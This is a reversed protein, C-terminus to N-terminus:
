ILVAGFAKVTEESDRGSVEKGTAQEILNLLSIARARIFGEFDDARITHVPILHSDLFENLSAESVQKKQEIRGLYTSPADGSIFRNTGAALPAKNVISNWKASPLQNRECWIRPFIHHIDIANNFFSNIDIPTGSVFDKSGHKMLLATLGKYAAANRSQLSLLRTPTFSADRLTRPEIGESIWHMVDQIDMAFRSESASGYLEGMVGSWFWRLLKQKVGHQSTLQGLEACIAALPILQTAYPISRRDFIKEEALLQAATIFGHELDAKHATYDALTLNLVDVRKCSVPSNTAL